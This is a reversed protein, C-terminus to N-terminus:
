YPEGPSSGGEPAPGGGPKRLGLIESALAIHQRGHRVLSAALDLPSVGTRRETALKMLMPLNVGTVVELGHGGLFSLSVNSPTGGFLDTLVIAGEGTDVRGLAEDIRQHLDDGPDKADVPVVECASLEGAILRTTEVLERGLNGHTVIVVGIM